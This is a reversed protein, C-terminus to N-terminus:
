HEVSAAPEPLWRTLIAGVVAYGAAVVAGVVAIRV